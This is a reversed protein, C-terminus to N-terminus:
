PVSKLAIQKTELVGILLIELFIKGIEQIAKGTNTAKRDGSLQLCKFQSSELRFLNM